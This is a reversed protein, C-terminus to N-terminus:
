TLLTPQYPLSYSNIKGRVIKGEWDISYRISAGTESAAIAKYAPCHAATDCLLSSLDDYRYVANECQNNPCHKCIRDRIATRVDNFILQINHPSNSSAQRILYFEDSLFSFLLVNDSSYSAYEVVQLLNRYNFISGKCLKAEAVYVEGCKNSELYIDPGKKSFRSEIGKQNLLKVLKECADFESSCKGVMNKLDLLTRMQAPLKTSVVYQGKFYRSYEYFHTSEFLKGKALFGDTGVGVFQKETDSFEISFVPNYDPHSVLYNIIDQDLDINEM